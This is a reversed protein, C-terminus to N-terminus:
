LALPAGFRTFWRPGNRVAVRSSMPAPPKTTRDSCAAAISMCGVGSGSRCQPVHPRTARDSALSVEDDDVIPSPVPGDERLESAVLPLPDDTTRTAWLLSRSARSPSPGAPLRRRTAMPAFPTVGLAAWGAPFALLTVLLAIGGRGGSSAVSLGTLGPLVLTAGVGLLAEGGRSLSRARWTALASLASGLLLAVVGITSIAWGSFGAVMECDSAKAVMAGVGMLALIAGVAPVAFATWFLAPVPAGPVREVRHPRGPASSRRWLVLGIWFVGSEDGDNIANGALM